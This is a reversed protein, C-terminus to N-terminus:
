AYLLHAVIENAGPASANNDALGVTAAISLATDFPLGLPYVADISASGELVYTWIPTTTGVTVNAATANYLKVYRAATSLNSLEVRYVRGASAKVEEETEDVDLSRFISLAPASSTGVVQVPMPATASADNKSGDAGWVVKVRPTHTGGIDDSDFAFGGATYGDAM